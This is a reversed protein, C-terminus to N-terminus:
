NYFNPWIRDVFEWSTKNVINTRSERVFARVCSCEPFMIDGAVVNASALSLYNDINGPPPM